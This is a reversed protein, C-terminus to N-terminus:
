SPYTSIQCRLRLGVTLWNGLRSTWTPESSQTPSANGGVTHPRASEENSQQCSRCGGRRGCILEISSGFTEAFKASLWSLDKIAAAVAGPVTTISLKADFCNKRM